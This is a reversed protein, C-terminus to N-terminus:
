SVRHLPFPPFPQQPPYGSTPLAQSTALPLAVPQSSPASVESSLMSARQAGMQWPTSPQSSSRARIEFVTSVIAHHTLNILRLHETADEVGDSEARREAEDRALRREPAKQGGDKRVIHGRCDTIRRRRKVSGGYIQPTIATRTDLVIM